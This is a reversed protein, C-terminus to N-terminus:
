KNTSGLGGTRVGTAKDDETTLYKKILGQGICQGKCLKIPFPSLNILQFYIHGENEPNNYYDADIIAEGNALILWSKLPLSSRIALELYTGSDLKCKVGTPVLAPRIGTSKTLSSIEDLTLPRNLASEEEVDDMYREWPSVKKNSREGLLRKYLNYYPYIITDEAVAFDYGASGVTKREPLPLGAAAYEKVFEFKTAM